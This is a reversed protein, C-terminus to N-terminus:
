VKLRLAKVLSYSGNIKAKRSVYILIAVVPIAIATTCSFAIILPMMQHRKELKGSFPSLLFFLQTFISEFPYIYMYSFASSNIVKMPVCKRNEHVFCM